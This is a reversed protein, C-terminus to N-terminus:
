KAEVTRAEIRVLRNKDNEAYPQVTDGTYEVKIKERSFGYENVLRDAVEEARLRSLEMNRKANGTGKDAYGTVVVQVNERNNIWQAMNRLRVADAESVATRNQQFFLDVTNEEPVFPPEPVVVPKPEPEPEPVVVPEPEPEPVVVPEPEPEPVVVPEPVPPPPAVTRKKYGFKYRVGVMATIQWDHNHDDGIKSNFRDNLNNADAEINVGWHKAVNAELMLGLRFNHSFRDDTWSFLQSPRQLTGNGDVYDAPLPDTDWLYNLGVGAILYLDLLRPCCAKKRFINTVNVMLDLNGTFYKFDTEGAPKFRRGAATKANIGQASLRAGIVPSFQGGVQVGGIPTILKGLNYNTLTVQAGGQLGVFGYPFPQYDMKCQASATAGGLLACAALALIKIKM